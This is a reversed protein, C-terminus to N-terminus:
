SGARSPDLWVTFRITWAFDHDARAEIADHSRFSYGLQQQRQM